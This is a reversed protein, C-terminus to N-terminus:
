YYLSLPSQHFHFEYNTHLCTQVKVTFCSVFMCTLKYINNFDYDLKCMLYCIYFVSCHHLLSLAYIYLNITSHQSRQLQYMHTILLTVKHLATNQINYILLIPLVGAFITNFSVNLWIQNSRFSVNSHFPNQQKELRLRFHLSSDHKCM